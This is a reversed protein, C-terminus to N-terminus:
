SMPHKRRCGTGRVDPDGGGRAPIGAEDLPSPQGGRPRQRAGAPQPGFTRLDQNEEQGYEHQLVRFAASVVHTMINGRTPGPRERALYAHLDPAAEVVFM